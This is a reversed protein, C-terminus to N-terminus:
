RPGKTFRLALQGTRRRSPVECCSLRVPGPASLAVSDDDSFGSTWIVNRFPILRDAARELRLWRM